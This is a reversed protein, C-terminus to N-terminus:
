RTKDSGLIAVAQPVDEARALTMRWQTVPSAGPKLLHLPGTRNARWEHEIGAQRLRKELTERKRGPISFTRLGLLTTDATQTM